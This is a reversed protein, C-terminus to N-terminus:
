VYLNRASCDTDTCLFYPMVRRPAFSRVPSSPSPSAMSSPPCAPATALSSTRSSRQDCFKSLAPSFLPLSSSILSAYQKFFLLLFRHLFPLPECAGFFAGTRRQGRVEVKGTRTWNAPPAPAGDKVRPHDSPLKTYELLRETSTMMNELEATQRVMWQMLGSLQLVQSLALAMLGVNINHRIAMILFTFANLLLGSIADLRFGVWRSTCIFLWWWDSNKDMADLFDTRFRHGSEM